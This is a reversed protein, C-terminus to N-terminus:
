LPDTGKERKEGLEAPWLYSTAESPWSLGPCPYSFTSVPVPLMLLPMKGLPQCSTAKKSIYCSRHSVSTNLHLPLFFALSFSLSLSRQPRVPHSSNRYSM